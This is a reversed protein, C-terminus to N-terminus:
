NKGSLLYRGCQQKLHEYEARYITPVYRDPRIRNQLHWDTIVCVGSRFPIVFGKAILLMFDDDSSGTVRQIKRPSGVFGDDDARILLDYYLCRTTIPMSLFRDTDVVDLSIMRRKAM